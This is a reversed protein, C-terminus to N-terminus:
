ANLNKIDAVLEPLEELNFHGRDEFTRVTAAPLAARYKELEGFSVVQDDTSHYLHITGGQQALQELSSPLAFEGMKRKWRSSGGSEYPAAVLFTASIKKPFANEALYKALFIGGLSHGVLVVGEQMFPIFREFWIKWEDYRASDKNPMGPSIVEYETGLTDQLRSKWDRFSKYREIQIPKIRLQELFDEYREYVSTGGHIVFVQRM